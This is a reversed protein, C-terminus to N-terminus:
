VTGAIKAMQHLLGVAREGLKAVRAHLQAISENRATSERVVAILRQFTAEDATRPKLEDLRDINAMVQRLSQDLLKSAADASADSADELEKLEEPTPM